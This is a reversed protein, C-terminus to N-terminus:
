FLFAVGLEVRKDYTSPVGEGWLNTGLMLWM